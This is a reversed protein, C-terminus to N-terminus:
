YRLDRIKLMLGHGTPAGPLGYSAPVAEGAAWTVGAGSGRWGLHRQCSVGDGRGPATAGLALVAMAGPAVAGIPIASPPVAGHPSERQPGCRRASTQVPSWLAPRPPGSDRRVRPVRGCKGRNRGAGPAARRRTPGPPADGPASAVLSRGASERTLAEASRPQHLGSRIRVPTVAKLPRRGLGRSSPASITAPPEADGAFFVM